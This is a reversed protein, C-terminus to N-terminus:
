PKAEKEAAKRQRYERQKQAKYSRMDDISKPRGPARKGAQLRFTEAIMKRGQEIAELIAVQGDSPPPLAIHLIESTQTEVDIAAPQAHHQRLTKGAKRGGGYILREPKWDAPKTSRKPCDFWPHSTKGCIDCPLM